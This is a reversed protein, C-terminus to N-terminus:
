LYLVEGPNICGTQGNKEFYLTYSTPNKVIHGEVSYILSNYAEIYEYLEINTAYWIDERNGMYEAFEEIIYWNNNDDFEYSHGWLYFLRSERTVEEEVFSRALEMLRAEKHRCTPVLRLWDAPINFNGSSYATRAYAIGATKLCEVVKDDFSGDAYAMGRIITHFMKELNERDKIVEYSCRAQSLHALGPHTLGHVAIEMGSDTYLEKAQKETMRRANSSKPWFLGSNINFTGKLGYKKMIEILRVDQKVGDDYSLTLAKKKGEPFRMFLTSM